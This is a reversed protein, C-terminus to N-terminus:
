EGHNITIGLCNKGNLPRRDTNENYFNISYKLCETYCEFVPSFTADLAFCGFLNIVDDKEEIVYAKIYFQMDGIMFTEKIISTIFDESREIDQTTKYTTMKKGKM